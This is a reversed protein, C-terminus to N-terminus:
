VSHFKNRLPLAPKKPNFAVLRRWASVWHALIAPWCFDKGSFSIAKRALDVGAQNIAALQDELGHQTLKYRNAGFTNTQIMKSGAKIYERHIDAVASLSPLISRTLVQPLLHRRTQHLMTGMAGDSLLPKGSKLIELFPSNIAM